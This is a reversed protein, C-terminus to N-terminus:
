IVDKKKWNNWIEVYKNWIDFIWFRYMSVLSSPLTCNLTKWFSLTSAFRVFWIWLPWFSFYVFATFMLFWKKKKKLFCIKYVLRTSTGLGWILDSAGRKREETSIKLMSSWFILTKLFNKYLFLHKHAWYERGM